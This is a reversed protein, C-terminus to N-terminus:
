DACGGVLHVDKGQDRIGKQAMTEDTCFPPNCSKTCKTIGIGVKYGSHM